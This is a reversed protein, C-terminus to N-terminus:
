PSIIKFGDAVYEEIQKLSLQWPLAQWSTGLVLLVVVDFLLLDLRTQFFEAPAIWTLEAFEHFVTTRKLEFLLGVVSGTDTEKVRAHYTVIKVRADHVVSPLLVPEALVLFRKFVTHHGHDSLLRTILISSILSLAIACSRLFISNTTSCLTHDNVLM